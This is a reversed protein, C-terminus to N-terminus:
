GFMEVILKVIEHYGYNQGSIADHVQRIEDKTLRRGIQREGERVAGKFQRNQAQNNGPTGGSSMMLVLGAAILVGGVLVLTGDIVIVIPTAVLAGGGTGTAALAFGGTVTIAGIICLIGAIIALIGLVFSIKDGLDRGAHFAGSPVLDLLPDLLGGLLNSVIQLVAGSVYLFADVVVSVVASTVAKVADWIGGLASGIVNAVGAFFGDHDQAVKATAQQTGASVQGGVHASNQQTAATVRQQVTGQIQAAAQGLGSITRQVIEGAQAKTGAAVTNIAAETEATGQQAHSTARASVEQQSTRANGAFEHAAANAQQAGQTFRGRLTGLFTDLNGGFGDAGQRLKAVFQAKGGGLSQQAQRLVAPVGPNRIRQAQQLLATTKTRLASVAAGVARRVQGQGAQAQQDMQTSATRAQAAFGQEAATQKATLGALIRDRIRDLQSAVAGRLQGLTGTLQAAPQRIAATAPQEQAALQGGVRQATSAIRNAGVDSASQADLAIATAPRELAAVGKSAVGQAAQAQARGKDDGGYGGGRQQIQARQATAQAHVRQAEAYGAQRGAMAQAQGVQTVSAQKAHLDRAVAQAASESSAHAQRGHDHLSAITTSRQQATHATIAARQQAFHARVAETQAQAEQHAQQKRHAATQSMGHGLVASEQDLDAVHQEMASRLGAAAERIEADTEDPAASPDGDAARNEEGISPLDSSGPAVEVSAAPADAHVAAADGGDAVPGMHAAASPYTESPAGAIPEADQPDNTASAHTHAEPKAGPSAESRPEPGAAMDAAISAVLGTHVDHATHLAPGHPRTGSQTSAAESEAPVPTAASHPHIDAAPTNGGDAPRPAGAAAGSAALDPAPHNGTAGDVEKDRFRDAPRDISAAPGGRTGSSSTLQSGDGSGGERRRADPQRQATGAYDDLLAESSKGQVVADAVADAHREYPDGVEGLGGKLQVGARQQIVHAAEHAATYLSPAGAFAVHEGTAYAEAGMAQAGAAARSDTHAKVHSVDHKGFAQQIRDIYPLAGSPGSTGHAAAEYVRETQSKSSSGDSLAQVAVSGTSAPAAVPDVLAAEPESEARAAKQQLPSSPSDSTAPPAIGYYELIGRPPPGQNLAPRKAQVSGQLPEPRPIGYYDYYGPPLSFPRSPIGQDGHGCNRQRPPQKSSGSRSSKGHSM